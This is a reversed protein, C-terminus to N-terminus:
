NTITLSFTASTSFAAGAGTSTGSGTVTGTYTGDSTTKATTGGGSSGGSSCGSLATMGLTLVILAALPRIFRRRRFPVLCVLLALLAGGRVGWGTLGAQVPGSM